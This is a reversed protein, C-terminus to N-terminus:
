RNIGGQIAPNGLVINLGCVWNISQTGNGGGSISSDAITVQGTFNYNPNGSASMTVKPLYFVGSVTANAGPGWSITGAYGTADSKSFFVFNHTGELDRPGTYSQAHLDDLGNLTVTSIDLAGTDSSDLMIAVAGNTDETGPATYTLNTISGMSITSTVNIIKYVGPNMKGGSPYIGNYIGPLWNGSGDKASATTTYTTSPATPGYADFNTTAPLSQSYNTAGTGGIWAFSQSNSTGGLDVTNSTTPSCTNGAYDTQNTPVGDAHPGNNAGFNAKAYVSAGFNRVSGGGGSVDFSGTTAVAGFLEPVVTPGPAMTRVSSGTNVTAGIFGAFLGPETHQISLDMQKSAPDGITITYAGTAYTGAPCATNSTCSGLPLTFGLPKQLYQITVYHAANTSTAYSVAGALAAADADAQLLRRDSMALSLDIAFAALGILLASMLAVLVIVQGRRGDPRVNSQESMLGM